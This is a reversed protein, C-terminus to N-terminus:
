EKAFHSTSMPQGERVITDVRSPTAHNCAAGTQRDAALALATRPRSTQPVHVASRYSSVYKIRM